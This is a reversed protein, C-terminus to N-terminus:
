QVLQMMEGQQLISVSFANVGQWYQREKDAYGIRAVLEDGIKVGSLDGALDHIIINGLFKIESEEDQFKVPSNLKLSIKQTRKLWLNGWHREKTIKEVVVPADQYTRRGGNYDLTPLKFM